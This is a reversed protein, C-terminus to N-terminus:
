PLAIDGFAEFYYQPKVRKIGEPVQVHLKLRQAVGGGAAMPFGPLPVMANRSMNSKLPM